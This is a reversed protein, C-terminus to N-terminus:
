RAVTAREIIWARENKRLSFTWVRNEIHPARSGIRPVYSSSGYCSASAAAGNVQVDCTTFVLSQSELGEFARALATEDVGPYVAHASGADLREYARRYQQLTQEVLAREDVAPVIPAPAAASSVAPLPAAPADLTRAVAPPPVAPSALTSTVGADESTAPPVSAQSPTAALAPEPAPEAIPEPRRPEPQAAPEVPAEREAAAADVLPADPLFAAAAPRDTGRGDTTSAPMTTLAALSLGPLEVPTESVGPDAPLRVSERLPSWAMALAFVMVAALSAGIRARPGNAANQLRSLELALSSIEEHSPALGAAEELAAAASGFERHQLATRATALCREVVRQRMRAEFRAHDELSLSPKERPPEPRVSPSSAGWVSTTPATPNAAAPSALRERLVRAAAFDPDIALAADLCEVARVRNGAEYAARAATV